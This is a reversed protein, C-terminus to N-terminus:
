SKRRSFNKIKNKLFQLYAVASASGYNDRLYRKTPSFRALFIEPCYFAELVYENTKREASLMRGLLPSLIKEMFSFGYKGTDLGWVEAAARAFLFSMKKERALTLVDRALEYLRGKEQEMLCIAKLDSKEKEGLSGHNIMTHSIIHLFNYEPPLSLAKLSLKEARTWPVDSGFGTICFHIDVAEPPGKGRERFWASDSFPMRKFGMKSLAQFFIEKEQPKILIDLDSMQRVAPNAAKSLLLFAGKLAIFRVNEPLEKELKELCDLLLINRALIDHNM